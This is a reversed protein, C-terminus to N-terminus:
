ADPAATLLAQAEAGPEHAHPPFNSIDDMTDSLMGRCSKISLTM